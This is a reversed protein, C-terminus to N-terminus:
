KPLPQESTEEEEEEQHDHSRAEKHSELWKSKRKAVIDAGSSLYWFNLMLLLFKDPLTRVCTCCLQMTSSEEM